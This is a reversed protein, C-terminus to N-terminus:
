LRPPPRERFLYLVLLAALLGGGLNAALEGGFVGPAGLRPQLIAAAPLMVLVVRAASLLLASGSRGIANLAGNTVILVGFGAYGWAGISLYTAFNAAIVPDDTFVWALQERALVMIAAVTLGYGVCFLGSQVLAARARDHFGRGWNQGVIAGISGSLGLLPVIAFAQLRTAAGYGAVAAAGEAALLSTLVALGMPNIANAFSAPGAIRALARTGAGWECQRLIAPHFPLDTHQLAWFGLVTALTMSLITAYASGAIGYGPFIGLGDILLPNFVLNSAAMAIMIASSRKAEGQARLNGNLGMLVLLLPFGCSYPVIFRDILPLLEPPANMARFLAHRFGFLALALAVGLGSALVIGMNGIRNAQEVEGAGLRRSAVSAISALVGVGLSSLAQAIPFVFSMAALQAGGLRGIFYADVIGVSTMAAVAVIAPTTQGILHGTISGTTLRGFQPAPPSQSM